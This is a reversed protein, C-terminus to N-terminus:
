TSPVRSPRDDGGQPSPPDSRAPRRARVVFVALAAILVAGSVVINVRLGLVTTVAIVELGAEALRGAVEEGGPGMGIVVVNVRKTM